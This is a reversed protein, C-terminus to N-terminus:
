FSVMWAPLSFLNFTNFGAYVLDLAERCEVKLLWTRWEALYGLSMNDACSM